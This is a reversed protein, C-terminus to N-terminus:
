LNIFEALEGIAKSLANSKSIEKFYMSKYYEASNSESQVKKELEAILASMKEADAKVAELQAQLDEIQKKQEM